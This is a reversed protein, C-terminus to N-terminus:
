EVPCSLSPAFWEVVVALQGQISGNRGRITRLVRMVITATPTLAPFSPREQIKSKSPSPFLREKRSVGNRRPLMSSSGVIPAHRWDDPRASGNDGGGCGASLLFALPLSRVVRNRHLLGPMTKEQRHPPFPTPPM